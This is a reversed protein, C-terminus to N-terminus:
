SRQCISEQELSRKLDVYRYYDRNDRIAVVADSKLLQCFIEAVERDTRVALRMEEARLRRAENLLGLAQYCARWPVSDLRFLAGLLKMIIWFIHLLLWKRDHLNIWHLLLRNREAVVRVWTPKFGTGITSSTRHHVISSPEYEITWGRKWARYCLEVDEWYFPSLLECFGGLQRLKAADFAAYGGSAVFSYLRQDLCLRSPLVDYNVYVRWHGKQFLGLKGAGDFLDTGLRYAKCCVAFVETRNFHEVLPAIASREVAIDNNLLFVIQHRAAIFGSNAARAFGGNLQRAVIQIPVSQSQKVYSDLWVLTDDESCDDVVVVEVAAGMNQQYHEAAAVVTPLFEELLKRGNWTPIVLSVSPVKIM